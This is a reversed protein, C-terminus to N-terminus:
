QVVYDNPALKAQGNQSALETALTKTLHHAVFITILPWTAMVADVYRMFNGSKTIWRVVEPSQCIIPTYKKAMNPGIDVLTSGCPPDILAWTEGLMGFAFALKGEVDRRMGTTVRFVSRARLEPADSPEPDNPTDRAADEISYSESTETEAAPTETFGTDPVPNDIRSKHGRKFQRTSSEPLSEGCGCQCINAM